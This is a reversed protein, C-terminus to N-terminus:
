SRRRARAGKDDLRLLVQGKTVRDGERALIEAVTGGYLHQIVKQNSFVVLEGRAIVASTLPALGMWLVFVGFFVGIIGYGFLVGFALRAQGPREGKRFSRLQHAAGTNLRFKGGFEHRKRAPPPDKDDDTQEGTEPAQNAVRKPQNDRVPVIM